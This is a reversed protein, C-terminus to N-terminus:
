IKKNLRYLRCYKSQKQNITNKLHEGVEGNKPFLFPENVSFLIATSIFYAEKLDKRTKRAKLSKFLSEKPKDFGLLTDFDTCVRMHMETHHRINGIQKADTLM